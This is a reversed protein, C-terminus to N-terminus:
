VKRPHRGTGTCSELSRPSKHTAVNSKASKHIKKSAQFYFCELFHSQLKDCIHIIEAPFSPTSRPSPFFTKGRGGKDVSYHLCHHTKWVSKIYSVSM